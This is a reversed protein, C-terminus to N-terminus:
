IRFINPSNNTYDAAGAHADSAFNYFSHRLISLLHFKIPSVNHIFINLIFVFEGFFFLYGIIIGYM